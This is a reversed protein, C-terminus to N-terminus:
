PQSIRGASNLTYSTSEINSTVTVTIPASPEGRRNFVINSLGTVTINQELPTDQHFSPSGCSGAYIRVANNHVCVGWNQGLRHTISYSQAKRLSGVVKQATLDFTNYLLFNSLLPASAIGLIM